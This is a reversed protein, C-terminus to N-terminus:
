VSKHTWTVLRTRRTRSCQGARKPAPYEFSVRPPSRLRDDLHFWGNEDMTLYSIAQHGDMRQQGGVFISVDGKRQIGWLSGTSNIFQSSGMITEFFATPNKELSIPNKQDEKRPHACIIQAMSHDKALEFCFQMLKHIRDSPKFEAAILHALNDLVLLDPRHDIAANVITQRFGADMVDIRVGAEHFDDRTLLKLRGGLERGGIIRKLKDQM